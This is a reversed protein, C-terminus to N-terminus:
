QCTKSINKSNSNIGYQKTLIFEFSDVLANFSAEIIDTSVGITTWTTSKDKSTILVRVYAGTAQSSDVVRVKYDILQVDSLAPYYITLAERLSADLANVPGNGTKKITSISDGVKITVEALDEENNTITIKYDVLEFSPKFDSIIKKALLIFSGDAGEFQYGKSELFKVKDLIEQTKPNAKDLDPFISNLKSIVASKGSVESLLLQNSNGVLAPNIHEFSPESKIVADVHMGAKHSFAAKGVYPMDIDLNINSIEAISKAVHTLNDLKCDCEYNGKLILNAIITSLNANGCREGFGLFTGQVHTAGEQVAIISNAVAMGCDNHAHIGIKTTPFLEVIEKVISAIINPMTGGNTDCLVLTDAGSISAARLCEIAYSKDEVFSDFFHEADFIVRKGEKSLFSISSSILNLNEENTIGLINAAQSASTKGFITVVKTSASLLKKLNEDDKASVGKRHTSAFAVLNDSQTENFFEEDKPNSAPDGGEILDIGFNNLISFISQKDKTSFSIGIGQAGDRLTTDLFEIKAM